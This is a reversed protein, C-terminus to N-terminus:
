DINIVFSAFIIGMYKLLKPRTNNRASSCFIDKYKNLSLRMIM